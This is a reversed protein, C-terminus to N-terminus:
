GTTFNNIIRDFKARMERPDEEEEEEEDDEDIQQSGQAQNGVQYQQIDYRPQGEEESEEDGGEDEQM